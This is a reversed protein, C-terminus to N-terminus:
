NASPDTLWEYVSVTTGGKLQSSQIGSIEISKLGCVVYSAQNSYNPEQVSSTDLTCGVTDKRLTDVAGKIALVISYASPQTPTWDRYAKVLVGRRFMAVGVVEASQKKRVVYNTVDSRDSKLPQVQFSKQLRDLTPQEADELNLVVSSYSLSQAPSNQQAGGGCPLMLLCPLLVITKL